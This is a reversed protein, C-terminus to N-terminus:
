ITKKYEELYDFKWGYADYNDLDGFREKFRQEHKTLNLDKAKNAKTVSSDLSLGFINAIMLYIMGSAFTALFTAGAISRTESMFFALWFVVFFVGSYGYLNFSGDPNVFLSLFGAAESVTINAADQCGTLFAALLLWICSVM